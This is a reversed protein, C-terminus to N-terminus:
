LDFIMNIIHVFFKCKSVADGYLLKKINDVDPINAIGRIQCSM